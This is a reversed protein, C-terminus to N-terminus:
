SNSALSALFEEMGKWKGAREMEEIKRKMWELLAKTVDKSKPIPKGEDLARAKLDEVKASFAEWTEGSELEGFHLPDLHRYKPEKGRLDALCDEWFQTGEDEAERLREIEREAMHVLEKDGRIVQLWRENEESDWHAWARILMIEYIDHRHVPESTRLTEIVKSAPSEAKRPTEMAAILREIESETNRHVAILLFKCALQEVGRQRFYNWKGFVLPLFTTQNEAIDRIDQNRLNIHEPSGELLAVIGRPTIRYLKKEFHTPLKKRDSIKVLGTKELYFLSDLVTHREIKLEKEIAYATRDQNIALYKLIPFAQRFTRSPKSLGKNGRHVM